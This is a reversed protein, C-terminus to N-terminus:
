VVSTSARESVRRGLRWLRRRGGPQQWDSVVVMECGEYGVLPAGDPEILLQESHGDIGILAGQRNETHPRTVLGKRKNTSVVTVSGCEDIVDAKRDVIEIGVPNERCECVEPNRGTASSLRRGAGSLDYTVM